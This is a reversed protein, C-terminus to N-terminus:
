EVETNSGFYQNAVSQKLETLKADIKEKVINDWSATADSPKKDSLAKYLTQIDSM